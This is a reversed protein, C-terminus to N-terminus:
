GKIVSEDVRFRTLMTELEKPHCNSDKLMALMQRKNYNSVHKKQKSSSKIRESRKGNPM